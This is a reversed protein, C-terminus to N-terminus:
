FLLLWVATKLNLKKNIKLPKRLNSLCQVSNLEKQKNARNEFMPQCCYIFVTIGTFKIPKKFLFVCEHM